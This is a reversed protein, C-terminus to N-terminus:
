PTAPTKDSEKAAEEQAKEEETPAYSEAVKKYSSDVAEVKAANRLENTLNAAATQTIFTLIERYSPTQGGSQASVAQGVRELTEEFEPNEPNEGNLKVAVQELKYDMEAQAKQKELDAKVAPTKQIVRMIVYAKEPGEEMEIVGSIQGNDLKNIADRFLPPLADLPIMDPTENLSSQAAPDNAKLQEDVLEQFTKSKDKLQASMTDARTKTSSLLIGVKAKAAQDYYKSRKEFWKKLQEDTVKIDKTLLKDLALQYRTQRQLASLRVDKAELIEAVEPSEDKRAEIAADVEENSISLGEEKLKQMILAFDILQRLSSEGYNAELHAYLANRDVSQGNVTVVTGGGGTTSAPDVTAKGGGSNCGALSLSVVGALALSSVLAGFKRRLSKKTLYTKTM